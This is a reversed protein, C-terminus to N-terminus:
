ENNLNIDYYGILGLDFSTKNEKLNNVSVEIISLSNGKIDKNSIDFTKLPENFSDYITITGNLDRNSDNLHRVNFIFNFEKNTESIGMPEVLIRWGNSLVLIPQSIETKENIGTNEELEKTKDNCTYGINLYSNNISEYSADLNYGLEDVNNSNEDITVNYTLTMKADDNDATVIIGMYEFRNINFDIKGKNENYEEETYYKIHSKSKIKSIQEKNDTFVFTIEDDMLANAETDNYIMACVLENENNKIVKDIDDNKNDKFISDRFFYVGAAILVVVLVLILLIILGNGKKKKKPKESVNNNTTPQPKEKKKKVKLISLDLNLTIEEAKQEEISKVNFFTSFHHITKDLTQYAVVDLREINDVDYTIIEDTTGNTFLRELIEKIKNFIFENDIKFIITKEGILSVMGVNITSLDLNKGSYNIFCIYKKKEDDKLSFYRIIKLRNETNAMNVIKSEM